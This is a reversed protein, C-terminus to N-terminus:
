YSKAQPPREANYKTAREKQQDSCNFGFKGDFACDPPLASRALHTELQCDTRYLVLPMVISHMDPISPERFLGATELFELTNVFEPALMLRARNRWEHATPADKWFSAIGSISANGVASLEFRTNTDHLLEPHSHAEAQTAALTKATFPLFMTYRLFDTGGIERIERVATQHEFDHVSSILLKEGRSDLLLVQSSLLTDSTREIRTCTFDALGDQSKLQFHARSEKVADHPVLAEESGLNHVSFFLILPLFIGRM